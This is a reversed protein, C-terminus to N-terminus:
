SFDKQAQKRLALLQDQETAPKTASARAVAPKNASPAPTAQPLPLPQQVLAPQQIGHISLLGARMLQLAKDNGRKRKFFPELVILLDQDLVEDFYLMKQVKTTEAM